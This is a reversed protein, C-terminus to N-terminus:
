NQIWELGEEIYIPTVWKVSDDTLALFLISSAFDTKKDLIGETLDYIDSITDLSEINKIGKLDDKKDKIITLNVNIFADEFSRPHYGNEPKQYVVKVKDSIGSARLKIMNQLWVAYKSDKIDPAGFYYKITENSTSKPTDAVACACYRKKPSLKTTDIDTIVLTKIELFDLFHRFAKANAGVQLMTINQSSISQYEITIKEDTEKKAKEAKEAAINKMDFNAIFYPMLMNESTGEIFIAKSAFFLEASEISLYQKLFKFEEAKTYKCSLEEHFNKIEINCNKDADITIFLYRIDEFRSNSVIHPSHTTIITQLGNIDELINHIKDAFIYQLQPHTHAEPEEIFLLKIDKHNNLFSSKKIEITLLLYLINMYGLGNLYEPLYCDEDGYIVESSDNIIETAKLNSIVKLGELSLFDKANHLFSKFFSHYSDGLKQDMDTILKNIVEFKDPNNINNDNFFKTTLSSLIKKNTKDDSSSVSRRAHIFEFDILKKLDNLDKRILKYRNVSKLDEINELIYIRNELFESLYKKIYKEKGIEGSKSVAGLLKEKNIACEFAVRVTRCAPDLDMIFESINSLDDADEYVIELIMRISLEYIDTDQDINNIKSRLSISFDNYEFYNNNYFKEFLVLFSTKGSNNRGIMLCLNDKFDLTSDNLIRFNQISIKNIYM